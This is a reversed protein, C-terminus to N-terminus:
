GACIICPVTSSIGWCGSNGDNVVILNAVVEELRLYGAELLV